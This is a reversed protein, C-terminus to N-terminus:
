EEAEAADAQEQQFVVSELMIDLVNSVVLWTRERSKDNGPQITIGRHQYRAKDPTMPDDPDLIRLGFDQYTVIAGIWDWEDTLEDLVVIEPGDAIGLVIEEVPEQGDENTFHLSMATGSPDADYREEIIEWNFGGNVIPLLDKVTETVIGGTTHQTNM